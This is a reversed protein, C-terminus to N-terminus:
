VHHNFLFFLITEREYLAQGTSSVPSISLTKVRRDDQLSAFSILTPVLLFLYFSKVWTSIQQFVFLFLPMATPGVGCIPREDHNLFLM